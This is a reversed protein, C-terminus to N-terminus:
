QGGGCQCNCGLANLVGKRDAPTVAGMHQAMITGEWGPQPITTGRVPEVYRDDLKMLHGAEHAAVWPSEGGYWTGGNGRLFSRGNGVPVNIKSAGWGGISTTVNFGSASWRSEISSRMASVVDSTAGDGKFKFNINIDAGNETCKCTAKLGLPDIRAIPNGEVYAYTSLGGSLGIPDSQGYRGTGPEYDRFYNQNFGTASDYRQGPFRMDLVFATSDQDPDENPATNGFAEGKLDWRWIAVDRIPDIVARPTGLHDPQVYRLSNKALVGVPLDDLWIAQQLAAGNADYDGLWHGGEDYLIYTHAKGSRRCQEGRGNYAYNMTVTG